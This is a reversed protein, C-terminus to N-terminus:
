ITIGSRVGDPKEVEDLYKIFLRLILFHFIFVLISELLVSLSATWPHLQFLKYEDMTMSLILPVILYFVTLWLNLRWWFKKSLLESYKLADVEGAAYRKSFLVVFQAM